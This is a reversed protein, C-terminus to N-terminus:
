VNDHVLRAINVTTKQISQLFGTMLMYKLDDNGACTFTPAQAFIIVSLHTVQTM